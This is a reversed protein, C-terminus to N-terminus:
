GVREDYLFSGHAVFHADPFNAGEDNDWEGITLYTVNPPALLGLAMAAAKLQMDNRLARFLDDQMDAVLGDLPRNAKDDDQTMTRLGLLTFQQKWRVRGSTVQPDQVRKGLNITIAANKQRYAEAKDQRIYRPDKDRDVLIGDTRYGAAHSISKFAQEICDLVLELNTKETPAAM